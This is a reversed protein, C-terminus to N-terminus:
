QQLINEYMDLAERMAIRGAESIERAKAYDSVDGFSDFTMKALVEPRYRDAANKALVHNM